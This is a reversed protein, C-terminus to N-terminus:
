KGDEKQQELNEIMSDSVEKQYTAMEVEIPSPERTLKKGSFHNFFLIIGLGLGISYPISIIYPNENKEGFVLEHYREFVKGLQSDTQFAMIATAAGVFLILSVLIVRVWVLYPRPKPKIVRFEVVCDPEGLNSVTHGPLASDIARVVDVASILYAGDGRLAFLRIGLIRRQLGAPAYIDAVDGITIYSVEALTARKKLKFYIEV